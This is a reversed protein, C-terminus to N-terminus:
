SLRIPPFEELSRSVSAAKQVDMLNRAASNSIWLVIAIIGLATAYKPNRTIPLLRHSLALRGGFYFPIGLLACIQSAAKLSPNQFYGSGFVGLGVLGIGALLAIESPKSRPYGLM